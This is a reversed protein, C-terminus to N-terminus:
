AACEGANEAAIKWQSRLTNGNFTFAPFTQTGAPADTTPDFCQASFQNTIAAPIVMQGTKARRDLLSFKVVSTTSVGPIAKKIHDLRANEKKTRTAANSSDGVLTEPIFAQFTISITLSTHIPPLHFKPRM